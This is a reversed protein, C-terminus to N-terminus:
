DNHWLFLVELGGKYRWLFAQPHRWARGYLYLDQALCVRSDVIKRKTNVVGLLNDFIQQFGKSCLGRVLLGLWAWNWDRRCWFLILAGLVAGAVAGAPGAGARGRSRMDLYSFWSQQNWIPANPHATIYINARTFNFRIGHGTWLIQSKYIFMCGSFVCRCSRFLARDFPSNLNLACVFPVRYLFIYQKPKLDIYIYIRWM